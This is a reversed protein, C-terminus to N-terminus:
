VGYPLPHFHLSPGDPAALHVGTEVRSSDVVALVDCGGDPAAQANVVMGSAQGGAEGAFLATGAAPPEPTEIRALYMRRTLKGALHQTRAVVEQGVYCGKNFAVGGLLELNAMQPVFQERTAPRLSPIGARIELWEWCASGVPKLRRALSEWYRPAEARPVVLEYRDQGLRLLAGDPLRTVGDAAEPVAIACERLAAAAGDGALGLRVRTDSADEGQVDARLIFMALRQRVPELLEAPLQVCYGSPTQWMLFTALLRGQASCYGGYQSGAPGLRKVDNTFQGHLFAAADKGDYALLGYRSLDALVGTQAAAALEGPPDGFHRVAGDAIVAGQRALYDHWERHM